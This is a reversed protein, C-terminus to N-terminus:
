FKGIKLFCFGLWIFLDPHYDKISYIIDSKDDWIFKNCSGFALKLTSSDNKQIIPESRQIYLPFLSLFFVIFVLIKM